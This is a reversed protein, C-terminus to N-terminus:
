HQQWELTGRRGTSTGVTALEALDRAERELRMGRTEEPRPAAAAEPATPALNPAEAKGIDEDVPAVVVHLAAVDTEPIIWANTKEM